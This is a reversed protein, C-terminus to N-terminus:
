PCKSRSSPRKWQATTSTTTYTKEQHTATANHTRAADCGESLRTFAEQCDRDEDNSTTHSVEGATALFATKLYHPM